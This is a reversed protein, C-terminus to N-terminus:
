NFEPFDFARLNWITHFIVVLTCCRDNSWSRNLTGGEIAVVVLWAASSIQRLFLKVNTWSIWGNRSSIPSAWKLSLLPVDTEMLCKRSFIQSTFQLGGCVIKALFINFSDTDDALQSLNFSNLIFWTLEILMGSFLGHNSFQRSVKKDTWNGDSWSNVLCKRLQKITKDLASCFATSTALWNVLFTCISCFM